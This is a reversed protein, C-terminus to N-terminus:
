SSQQKQLHINIIEVHKHMNDLTRYMRNIIIYDREHRQFLSAMNKLEESMITSEVFNITAGKNMIAKQKNCLLSLLQTQISTVDELFSTSEFLNEDQAVEELFVLLRSVKEYNSQHATLLDSLTNAMQGYNMCCPPLGDHTAKELIEIVDESIDTLRETRYKERLALAKDRSEQLIPVMAGVLETESSVPMGPPPPAYPGGCPIRWSGDPVAQTTSGLALFMVLIGVGKMINNALTYVMGEMTYNLQETVINYLDSERNSYNKM